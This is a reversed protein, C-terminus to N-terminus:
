GNKGFYMDRGARALAWFGVLMIPFRMIVWLARLLTIAMIVRLMRRLSKGENIRPFPTEPVPRGVFECLPGWGDGLRYELLQGPPVVARVKAYHAEFRKKYVARMETVTEVEFWGRLIDWLMTFIYTGSLPEAWRRVFTGTRGVLLKVVTDDVSAAWKDPDRYCLIVKAHPYAELLSATHLSAVDTASQYEGLVSDWDARTFPATDSVFQKQLWAPSSSPYLVRRMFSMNQWAARAWQQSVPDDRSMNGRLDMGHLVRDVGLTNLAKTMSYTGTRFVGLCLIGGDSGLTTIPTPTPNVADADAGVDVEPQVKGPRLTAM